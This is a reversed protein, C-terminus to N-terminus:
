SKKNKIFDNRFYHKIALRAYSSARKGIYKDHAVLVSIVLKNPADKREAFGVFWDYRSNRAKNYISGTKGGIHLKSLIKDTRHGRFAKKPTGFKITAKMLEYIIKSAGPTIVRNLTALRSQYISEGKGNAIVEIVTPEVLMGQNFIVSTILAGHLPSLTTERNFGSAIEAWQYPNDSLSILSPALPIEFPINRNFGFAEAYKQLEIKGLCHVGIKGFVPNVSQAFSDRFTIKNSYRNKRNKLQSKYLTHKGGNYTLITKPNFGCKEIAAAATVIKFISAALFQSDTSPNNSSDTKDFGIMSLVKGTSPDMVVIGIHRSNVRDLKEALYNQLSIDLTTKAILTQGNSVFHFTKETWNVISKNAILVQVDNKHLRNLFTNESGTKDDHIVRGEKRDQLYTLGPIEGTISYVM